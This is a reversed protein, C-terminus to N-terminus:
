RARDLARPLGDAGREYFLPVVRAGAVDYLAEADVQTRDDNTPTSSAAASRGLRDARRTRVAGLGRGVLRRAHETSRRRQRRGEHRQHRQGGLPRRPTNLWVDSGQVLPRAVEMDYDELFVIRRRFPEQRAFDVIQQILEKGADDRPHAKGAFIIQM